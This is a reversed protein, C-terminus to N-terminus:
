LRLLCGYFYIRLLHKITSKPEKESAIRNYLFYGSVMFFFPVALRAIGMSTAIWLDDNVSKFAMTHISVVAIAFVLRLVDVMGYHIDNKTEM